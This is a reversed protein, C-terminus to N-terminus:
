LPANIKEVAPAPRQLWFLLGFISAVILHAYLLLSMAVAVEPAIGLPVLLSVHLQERLGLGNLSVPVNSLVTIATVVAFLAVIPPAAPGQMAVFRAYIATVAAAYGFVIIAAQAVVAPRKLPAAMDLRLRQLRGAVEVAWHGYTEFRAALGGTGFATVVLLVLSAIAIFASAVNAAVLRPTSIPSLWMAASALLALLGVGLLRDVVLSAAVRRYGHNPGLYAVKAVDGGVTSPLFNNVFMGVFYQRVVTTFPIALGVERLLLAWRWAYAIQGALVVVLSLLYFSLPLRVFLSRLANFDLTRALVALLAVTV